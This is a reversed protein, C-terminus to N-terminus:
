IIEQNPFQGRTYGELWTALSQFKNKLFDSGLGNNERNALVVVQKVQCDVFKDVPRDV